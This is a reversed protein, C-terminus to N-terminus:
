GSLVCPLRARLNKPPKHAENNVEQRPILWGSPDFVLSASDDVVAWGRRSVLGPEIRTQGAVADLTRATGGLNGRPQMGFRWTTGTQKLRISLTSPHFGRRTLRYKLHLFETEIEVSQETVKSTFPPVPQQRFWFAQSPRDEFQEAPSYELRILRDTLVTFRVHPAHVISAPNPLPAFSPM